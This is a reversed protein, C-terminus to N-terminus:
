LNRVKEIFYDVMDLRKDARGPWDRGPIFRGGFTHFGVFVDGAYHRGDGPDIPDWSITSIRSTPNNVTNVTQSEKLRGTLIIDRNPLGIDAFENTDEIVAQCEDGFAQVTEDFAKIIKNLFNQNFKIPDITIKTM